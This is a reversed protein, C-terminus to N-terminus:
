LLDWSFFNPVDLQSATTCRNASASSLFNDFSSSFSFNSNKLSHLTAYLGAFHLTTWGNWFIKLSV